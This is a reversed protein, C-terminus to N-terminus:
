CRGLEGFVSENSISRRAPLVQNADVLGADTEEGVDIRGLAWCIM